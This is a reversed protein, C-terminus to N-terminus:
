EERKRKITQSLQFGAFIVSTLIVSWGLREIGDLGQGGTDPLIAGAYNIVTYPNSISYTESQGDVTYSIANNADFTVTIKLPETLLIYGDATATEYLLYNSVGSDFRLQYQVVGTSAPHIDDKVLDGKDWNDDSKYLAFTVKTIDDSTSANNLVKKISLGGSANVWQAYLVTNETLNITSNASYFTGSGNSSTNWGVFTYGPRSFSSNDAVNVDAGKEYSGGIPTTSGQSFDTCNLDYALTVKTRQLLVGDVHWYGDPKGPIKVVYWIVYFGGNEGLDDASISDVGYKDKLIKSYKNVASAISANTPTKNLNNAVAEGTPDTVFKAEKLATQSSNFYMGSNTDHGTYDDSQANSPENVITADLRIFFHVAVSPTNEAWIAYLTMSKNLILSSGAPYITVQGQNLSQTDTKESWGVFSYGNKTLSGQDPLTIELGANEVTIADPVTGSAGNGDFKISYSTKFIFYLESDDVDRWSSNVYVQLKRTTNYYSYSVNLRMKTFTQGSFTGFCARKFEYENLLNQQNSATLVKEVITEVSYETNEEILNSIDISSSTVSGVSNQNTDVFKFTAKVSSRRSSYFVVTYTSFHKAEFNVNEINEEKAVVLEDAVLELNKIEDVSVIDATTNADTDLHSVEIATAEKSKLEIPEGSFSVNVYGNRSWSNDLVNGEADYLTIDYALVSKVEVAETEAVGSEIKEKVANEVNETVEAIKATTGEPLIGEAASINIKVGNLTEAYEFTPHSGPVEEELFIEVEQDELVEPIVYYVANDAREANSPSAVDELETEELEAGNATVEAIKYGTQPIVGFTVEAGDRALKPAKVLEASGTPDIMYDIMHGQSELEEKDLGMDSLKATFARITVTQDLSALNYTEGKLAGIRKFDPEDEEEAPNADDPLDSIQAETTTEKESAETEQAAATTEEQAATEKTEETDADAATTEEAMTEEATTEAETVAETVPAETEKAPKTVTIEEEKEVAKPKEEEKTEKLDISSDDGAVETLLFRPHSSISAVVDSSEAEQNSSASDESGSGDASDADASDATDSGQDSTDTDSSNDSADATDEQDSDATDATDTDASNDQSKDEDATDSKDSQDTTDKQATDHSKKEETQTGINEKQDSTEKEEQAQATEEEKQTSDETDSHIIIDKGDKDFVAAYSKLSCVGSIYGDINVRGAVTEDGGNVYLFIFTEEGTLVCSKPDAEESLRLFIRLDIEDLDNEREYEPFVEYLTGDAALLEDYEKQLSADKTYIELPEEVVNEEELAEEAARQLEDAHIRFEEKKQGAFVNILPNSMNSFIVAILLLYTVAVKMYRQLPVAQKRRSAGKAKRIQGM